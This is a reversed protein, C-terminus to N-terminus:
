PGEAPRMPGGASTRSVALANTVRRVYNQTEEFPPVGGYQEVAGEGANYGALALKVDGKFHDLLWRLYAMGGRLNQEPDWPNEVGFREATAPMLQMLGQANKPSRAGPDFNSEVRIVALVVEPDLRYESALSRVVHAVRAPAPKSRNGAAALAGAGAGHGTSCTALRKPKVGLLRLVNGAQVHRQGAAKMFWAAALADDRKVGRGHSYIWGLFYQADADGAAAAKCYLRIARGADAVVGEGNEYRRGWETLSARSATAYVREFQGAVAEGTAALVACGFMWLAVWFGLNNADHRSHIRRSAMGPLPNRCGAPIVVDAALGQRRRGPLISPGPSLSPVGRALRRGLEAPM